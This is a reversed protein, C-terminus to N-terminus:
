HFHTFIAVEIILTLKRQVNNIGTNKGIKEKKRVIVKKESFDATKMRKGAGDGTEPIDANSLLLRPRGSCWGTGDGNEQINANGM